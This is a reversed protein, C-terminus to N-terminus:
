FWCAMYMGVLGDIGESFRVGHTDWVVDSMCIRGCEVSCEDLGGYLYLLGGGLVLYLHLVGLCCLSWCLSSSSSLLWWFSSSSLWGGLVLLVLLHYYHFCVMIIIFVSWSWWPGHLVLVYLGLHLVLVYLVYLGLGVYYVYLVLVYYVYLVVGHLVYLGLLVYLVVGHLVYLGLLVYLVYLGHYYHYDHYHFLGHHGGSDDSILSDHLVYLGLHLNIVVLILIM